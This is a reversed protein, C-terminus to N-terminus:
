CEFVSFSLAAAIEAVAIGADSFIGSVSQISIVEHCCHIAATHGDATVFGARL